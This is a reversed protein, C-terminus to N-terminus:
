GDVIKLSLETHHPASSGSAAMALPNYFPGPQGDIEFVVPGSPAGDWEIRARRGIPSHDTVMLWREQLPDGGIAPIQARQQQELWAPVDATRAAAPGYDYETNGYSSTVAPEVVTVRHPMLRPPVGQSPM